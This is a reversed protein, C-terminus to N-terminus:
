KLIIGRKWAKARMKNKKEEKEEIEALKYLADRLIDYDEQTIVNEARLRWIVECAADSYNTGM